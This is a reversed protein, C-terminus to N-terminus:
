TGFFGKEGNLTPYNTFAPKLRDMRKEFNSFRQFLSSWLKTKGFETQKLTLISVATPMQVSIKLLDRALPRVSNPLFEFPISNQKKIKAGFFAQWVLVRWFKVMELPYVGVHMALFIFLSSKLLSEETAEANSERMSALTASHLGGCLYEVWLSVLFPEIYFDGEPGVQWLVGLGDLLARSCEFVSPPMQGNKFATASKLLEATRKSNEKILPVSEILPLYYVTEFSKLRDLEQPTFFDLPGKIAVYKSNLKLYVYLPGPSLEYPQISDAAVPVLGFGSEADIKTRGIAM